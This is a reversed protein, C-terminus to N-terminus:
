MKAKKNKAQGHPPAPPGASAHRRGTSVVRLAMAPAMPSLRGTRLLANRPPGTGLPPPGTRLVLVRSAGPRIAGLATSDGMRSQPDRSSLASSHPDDFGVFWPESAPKHLGSAPGDWALGSAPGDQGSAPWSGPGDLASAPGLPSALPAPAAFPERPEYGFPISPEYGFPGSPPDVFWPAGATPAMPAPAVLPEYGLPGSPPGLLWPVPADGHPADLPWPGTMPAMQPTQATRVSVGKAGSDHSPQGARTLGGRFHHRQQVFQEKAGAKKVVRGRKARPAMRAPPGGSAARVAQKGKVGKKQGLPELTKQALPELPAPGGGDRAHMVPETANKSGNNAGRWSTLMAQVKRKVVTPIALAAVDSDHIWQLDRAAEVGLEAFVAAHSALHWQALLAQLEPVGGRTEKKTETGLRARGPALTGKKETHRLTVAPNRRVAAGSKDVLGLKSNTGWPVFARLEEDYVFCFFASTGSACAHNEECLWVQFRPKETLPGLGGAPPHLDSGPGRRIVDDWTANLSCAAVSADEGWRPHSWGGDVEIVLDILM